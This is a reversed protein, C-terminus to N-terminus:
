LCVNPSGHDLTVFHVLAQFVTIKLWTLTDVSIEIHDIRINSTHHTHDQLADIHGDFAFEHLTPLGARMSHDQNLEDLLDPYQACDSLCCCLSILVPLFFAAM